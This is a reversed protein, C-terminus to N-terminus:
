RKVDTSMSVNNVDHLHDLASLGFQVGLSTWAGSMKHQYENEVGQRKQRRDDDNGGRAGVLSRYIRM